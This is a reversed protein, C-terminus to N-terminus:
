INPLIWWFGDPGPSKMTPLNQNISEIEKSTLSRNLTQIEEHNLRSLDYTELFKAMEELKKPAYNDTLTEWPGQFNQLM